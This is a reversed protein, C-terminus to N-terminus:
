FRGQLEFSNNDNFVNEVYRKRMSIDDNRRQGKYRVQGDSSHFFGGGSYLSALSLLRSSFKLRELFGSDLELHYCSIVLQTNGWGMWFPLMIFDQVPDTFATDEWDIVGTIFGNNQNILINEPYLDNHNLRLQGSYPDPPKAHILWDANESLSMDQLSDIFRLIDTRQDWWDFCRLYRHNRINFPTKVDLEPIAHLTSLFNGLTKALKPWDTVMGVNSSGPIGSIMPYAGFQYPFGCDGPPSVMIIEPISVGTNKLHTALFSSLGIEKALNFSVEKRLPFRLIWESNLSYVDNSWGSGLYRINYAMLDPLFSEAMVRVQSLDLNRDICWPQLIRDSTKM